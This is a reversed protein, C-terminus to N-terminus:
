HKDFKTKKIFRNPFHYNRGSYSDSFQSFHLSESLLYDLTVIWNIM